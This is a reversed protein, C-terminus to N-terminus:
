EKADIGAGVTVFDGERSFFELGMGQFVGLVKHTLVKLFDGAALIVGLFFSIPM